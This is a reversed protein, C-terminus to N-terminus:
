VGAGFAERLADEDEVSLNTHLIEFQEGEVAAAVKDVVADTTYLFLASDGPKISAGVEKIFDDDIGYDSFKGALAPLELQRQRFYTSTEELTFALEAGYLERLQGQVRLRALGLPPASRSTLAVHVGPPAAAVARRDLATSGLVHVDELVLWVPTGVAALETVVTEVFGPDIRPPPRIVHLRAEAPFRGPPSLTIRSQPVHHSGGNRGGTTFSSATSRVPAECGTVPGHHACDLDSADRRARLHCSRVDTIM